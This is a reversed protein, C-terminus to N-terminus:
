PRFHLEECKSHTTPPTAPPQDGEIMPAILNTFVMLNILCIPLGLQIGEGTINMLRKNPQFSIELKKNRYSRTNGEKRDPRDVGVQQGYTKNTKLNSGSVREDCLRMQKNSGPNHPSENELIKAAPSDCARLCGSSGDVDTSPKCCSGTCGARQIPGLGCWGRLQEPPHSSARVLWPSTSVFALTHHVSSSTLEQRQPATSLRKNSWLVRKALSPSTESPYM